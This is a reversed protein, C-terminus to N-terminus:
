ACSEDMGKMWIEYPLQLIHSKYKREKKNLIRVNLFQFNM